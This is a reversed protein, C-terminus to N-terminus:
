SRPERLKTFLTKALNRGFDLATEWQSAVFEAALEAQNAGESRHQTIDTHWNTDISFRFPPRSERVPAITSWVRVPPPGPRFDEVRVLVMGPRGLMARSWIEDKPVLLDGIQHWESEDRADFVQAHNIGVATIPTHPLKALVAAALTRLREEGLTTAANISLRDTLCELSIEEGIECRSLDPTVLPGNKKSESLSATEEEESVLGEREFWAPHFIRPNFSGVFVVSLTQKVPIPMQIEAMQLYKFQWNVISQM